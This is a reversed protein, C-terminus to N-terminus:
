LGNMIEAAVEADSFHLKEKGIIQYDEHGKGAILVVDGPRAMTLGKRIAERRDVEVFVKENVAEKPVGALIDRIIGLPEETRPNDSTVVVYDSGELARQAMLPRKGKDRDGGCGFVTIIRSRLHAQKKVNQLASLVTKLADDTHAYDVFVNLDLSNTIRQLRGPVGTFSQLAEACTEVSAGAAVGVAIAAVSNYVNHKGVLPIRLDFTGRPSQLRFRTGSFNQETVQFQFDSKVEGYTWVTALESARIKAGWEDSVNIIAHVKKGKAFSPIESFLREKTHFYEEMTKHYDLHDRTLNTFVVADFPISDARKQHLAHSSVEFAVARAGLDVFERLRKHLTLPDPTTLESKWVHNQLHHDVTGIVGTPRGFHNLIKEVLFTVSTKGNTGTVGVSFLENAPHGYYHAALLDLAKRTDLVAVVAGKYDSPVKSEDSVVVGIAGQECVQKLYDHGDGSTGKIAVFVSGKRVQRSNATLNVVEKLPDDGFRLHSYLSFLQSLKM